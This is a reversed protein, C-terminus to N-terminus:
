QREVAQLSRSCCDSALCGEPLIATIPPPSCKGAQMTAVCEHLGAVVGKNEGLKFSYFQDVGDVVRPGVWCNEKPQPPLAPPPEPPLAALELRVVQSELPGEPACPPSSGVVVVVLLMVAVALAKFAACVLETFAERADEADDADDTEDETAGASIARRRLESRKLRSLRGRLLDAQLGRDAAMEAEEAAEEAGTTAAPKPAPQTTDQAAKEAKEEARLWSSDFRAGDLNRGVFHLRVM